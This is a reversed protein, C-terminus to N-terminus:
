VDDSGEVRQIIKRAARVAAIDEEDMSGSDVRGGLLSACQRLASLLAPAAAFLRGTEGTLQHATTWNDDEGVVRCYGGHSLLYLWHEEGEEENRNSVAHLRAPIVVDMNCQDCCRGDNVPQANNGSDWGGAKVPIEKNCISCNM